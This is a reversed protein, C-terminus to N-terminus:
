PNGSSDAETRKDHGSQLSFLQAFFKPWPKWLRYCVIRYETSPFVILMM